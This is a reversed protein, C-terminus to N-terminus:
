PIAYLGVGSARFQMSPGNKLEIVAFLDARGSLGIQQPVQGPLRVTVQTISRDYSAPTIGTVVLEISLRQTLSGTLISYTATIRDFNAIENGDVGTLYFHLYESLRSPKLHGVLGSYDGHILILGPDGGQLPLPAAKAAQVTRQITGEIWPREVSRITVSDVAGEVIDAPLPAYAIGNGGGLWTLQQGGWTVTFDTVGDYILVGRVGPEGKLGAFDFRNLAPQVGLAPLPMWSFSQPGPRTLIRTMSPDLVADRPAQVVTGTSPYYVNNLPGCRYHVASGVGHFGGVFMPLTIQPSYRIHEIPCEVPRANETLTGMALETLRTGRWFFVSRGSEGKWVCLRKDECPMALMGDNQIQAISQVESLRFADPVALEQIQGTQFARFYGRANAMGFWRGNASM